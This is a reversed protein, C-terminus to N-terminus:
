DGFYLFSQILRTEFSIERSVFFVTQPLDFNGGCRSDINRNVPVKGAINLKLFGHLEVHNQFVLQRWWEDGTRVSGAFLNRSALRQQLFHERGRFLIKRNLAVLAQTFHIRLLEPFGGHVRLLAGQELDPDIIGYFGVVNKRDQHSVGDFRPALEDFVVRQIYPIQINSLQPALQWSASSKEM